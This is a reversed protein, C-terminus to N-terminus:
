KPQTALFNTIAQVVQSDSKLNEWFMIKDKPVYMQDQPGHLESGLKVLNLSPGPPQAGQQLPEAVRLYYIDKLVVYNRNYNELHGFYVQNNTLFVGQWESSSVRPFDRPAIVGFLVFVKWIIFVGLLALAVAIIKRKLSYEM